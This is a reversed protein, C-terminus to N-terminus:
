VPNSITWQGTSIQNSGSSNVCSGPDQQNNEKLWDKSVGATSKMELLRERNQTRRLITETSRGGRASAPTQTERNNDTAQLRPSRKKGATPLLLELTGKGRLCQEQKKRSSFSCGSFVAWFLPTSPRLLQDVTGLLSPLRNQCLPSTAAPPQTLAATWLGPPLQRGLRARVLGKKDEEQLKERSELTLARLRM